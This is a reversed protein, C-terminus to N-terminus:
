WYAPEIGILLSIPPAVATTLTWSAVLINGAKVGLPAGATTLVQKAAIGATGASLDINAASLINASVTGVYKALAVVAGGSAHLTAQGVWVEMITGDMPMLYSTKTQEGNVEIAKQGMDVWLWGSLPSAM